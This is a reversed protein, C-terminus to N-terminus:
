QHTKLHKIPYINCENKHRQRDTLRNIHKHRENDIVDEKQRKRGRLRKRTNTQIDSNGNCIFSEKKRETKRDKLRETKRDTQRETEGDRKGQKENTQRLTQSDM